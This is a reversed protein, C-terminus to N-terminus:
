CWFQDLVLSIFDVFVVFVLVAAAAAAAAAAAVFFCYCLVQGLIYGIIIIFFNLVNFYHTFQRKKGM